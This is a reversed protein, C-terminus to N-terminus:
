WWGEEPFSSFSVHFNDKLVWKPPPEPMAYFALQGM